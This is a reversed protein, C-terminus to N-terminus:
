PMPGWGPADSGIPAEAQPVPRVVAPGRPVRRLDRWSPRVAISPDLTRDPLPAGTPNAAGVAPTALNAGIVRSACDVNGFPGLANFVLNVASRQMADGALYTSRMTPGLQQVTCEAIANFADTASGEQADSGGSLTNALQQIQFLTTSWGYSIAAKTFERV